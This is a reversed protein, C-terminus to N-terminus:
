SNFYFSVFICDCVWVFVGEYIQQLVQLFSQQIIKDLFSGMALFCKGSMNFNSIFVKEVLKYNYFSILLKKSFSGCWDYSFKDFILKWNVSDVIRNNLNNNINWLARFLNNFSCILLFVNKYKKTYM